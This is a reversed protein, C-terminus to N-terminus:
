GDNDYDAAVKKAVAIRRDGLKALEVDYARYLPWFAEGEKETLPLSETLISVKETTIDHRLLEIASEQAFAGTTGLLLLAAILLKMIDEKTAHIPIHRGRARRGIGHLVWEYHVSFLRLLAELPVVKNM